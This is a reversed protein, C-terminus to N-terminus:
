GGIYVNCYSVPGNCGPVNLQVRQGINVGNRDDTQASIRASGSAGARAKSADAHVAAQQSSSPAAQAQAHAHGTMVKASYLATITARKMIARNIKKLCDQM